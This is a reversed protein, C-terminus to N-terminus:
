KKREALKARLRMVTNGYKGYLIGKIADHAMVVAERHLYGAQRLEIYLAIKPTLTSNKDILKKSSIIKYYEIIKDLPPDDTSILHHLAYVAKLYEPKNQPPM